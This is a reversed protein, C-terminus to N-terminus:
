RAIQRLEGAQDTLYEWADELTQINRKVNSREKEAGTMTDFLGQEEALADGLIKVTEEIKGIAERIREKRDKNM